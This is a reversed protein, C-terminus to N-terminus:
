TLNSSIVFFHSTSNKFNQFINNPINKHVGGIPIIKQTEIIKKIIVFCPTLQNFFMFFFRLIDKLYM